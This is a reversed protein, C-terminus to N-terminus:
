MGNPMPPPMRETLLHTVQQFRARFLDRDVGGGDLAGFEDAFGTCHEALWLTTTEM